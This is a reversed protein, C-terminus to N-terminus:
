MCILYSGLPWFERTPKAEVQTVAAALVRLTVTEPLPETVLAGVPIEHVALQLLVNAGPVETLRVAVGALPAWNVPHDPAQVPVVLGQETLRALGACTVALKLKGEKVRVTELVPLPLTVLLGAPISQPALQLAVKLEPAVIM